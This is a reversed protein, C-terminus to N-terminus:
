ISAIIDGYGWIITGAATLILAFIVLAKHIPRFKSRFENFGVDVMGTPNLRQHLSFLKLDLILCVVTMVSGSRQFWSAVTESEPRVPVTLAVIPLALAVVSVVAVVILNRKFIPEEHYM